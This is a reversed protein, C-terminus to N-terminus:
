GNFHSLFDFTSDNKFYFAASSYKYEFSHECLGARVPNNHIYELKQMFFGESYLPISLANREWVQYRRDKAEVLLEGLLSSNLNRLVKLIQQGTFKLFDRQVDERKHDGLMQWIMHLHNNMVVFAFVSIRNQRTLFKLSNVVVDKFLDNDLIPKWELCTITIFDPHDKPYIM